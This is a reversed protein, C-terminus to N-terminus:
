KTRNGLNIVDVVESILKQKRKQNKINLGERFCHKLHHNLIKNSSSNLLGKVALIQQLIDICYEDKEIMKLINEISTKAKKLAIAADNKSKHM